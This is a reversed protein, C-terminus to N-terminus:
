LYSHMIAREITGRLGHRGPPRRGLMTHCEEQACIDMPGGLRRVMSSGDDVSVAVDSGMLRVSVTHSQGDDTNRGSHFRLAPM